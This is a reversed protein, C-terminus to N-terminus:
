SKNDLFRLCSERAEALEAGRLRIVEQADGDSTDSAFRVSLVDDGSANGTVTGLRAVQVGAEAARKVLHAEETANVSVIVRSPAEGFLAAVQAQGSRCPPLTVDVGRREAGPLSSACCEALAVALGGDSVDHASRLGGERTLELVLKQLRAEADLDLALAGGPVNGSAASGTMCLYESGSLSQVDDTYNGLLYVRDGEGKWPPTVIDERRHVLGVAAVTPTPLVARGDTENYLSVNGSVIPVGLATCGAALGDIARAFTEMIEPREPNGFNLCDTIGIPEAGSVVLNRCVEAVAMAAGVFPDLEVFRGNCDVSFALLKEVVIGDRDCPVRVVAADAGPRVVTGGRVIHDYQRVIWQRSGVNPSGLLRLLASSFDDPVAIPPLSRAAAVTKRPRDYVPADDTLAGIPLDCVVIPERKAARVADDAGAAKALPDYGPTAKIVWRKTDTVRGVVAADLDWKKCIAIVEAERGPKAVLLMREQSESLLIEYPSM